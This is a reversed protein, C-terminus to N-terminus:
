MTEHGVTFCDGFYNPALLAEIGEFTLGTIGQLQEAPNDVEEDFTPGAGATGLCLDTPMVKNKLSQSIQQILNSPSKTYAYSDLMATVPRLNAELDPKSILSPYRQSVQFSFLAPGTLIHLLSGGLTEGLFTLMLASYTPAWQFQWQYSSSNGIFRLLDMSLKATRRMLEEEDAGSKPRPNQRVKCLVHGYVNLTTFAKQIWLSTRQFSRTDAGQVPVFDTFLPRSPCSGLLPSPCPEASALEGDWYSFCDRVRREADDVWEVPSTSTLSMSEIEKLFGGRLQVLEIISIYRIDSSTTLPVGLYARLSSDQIHPMRPEHATGFALEREMHHLIFWTRAQRMLAHTKSTVTPTQKVLQGVAKDLGLASAMQLAHGIAFWSKESYAALLVMAQVSEVTPPSKFLSEAALRLSEQGAADRMKELAHRPIGDLAAQSQSLAIFLITILCFPSRRRLSDFTDALPDFMPLFPNAGAFYLAYLNRASIHGQFLRSIFDEVEWSRAALGVGSSSAPLPLNPSAPECAVTRGLRPDDGWGRRSSSASAPPTMAHVASLPANLTIQHIRQSDDEDQLLAGEDWFGGDEHIDRADGGGGNTSSDNPGVSGRDPLGQGTPTELFHQQEDLPVARQSVDRNLGSSEPQSTEIVANYRNRQASHVIERMQSKMVRLEEQLASDSMDRREALDFICAVGANICRPCPDNPKGECRMKQRRCTRCAKLRRPPPESPDSLQQTM